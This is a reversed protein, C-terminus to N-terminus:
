GTQSGTVSFRKYMTPNHNKYNVIGRTPDINRNFFYIFNCLYYHNCFIDVIVKTCLMLYDYDFFILRDPAWM